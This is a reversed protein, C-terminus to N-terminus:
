NKESCKKRHNELVKIRNEVATLIDQTLIELLDPSLQSMRKSLAQPLPIGRLKEM